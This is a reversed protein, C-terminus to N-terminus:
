NKITRNRERELIWRVEGRDDLTRLWQLWLSILFAQGISCTRCGKTREREREHGEENDEYRMDSIGSKKSCM